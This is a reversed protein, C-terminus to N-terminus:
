VSGAWCRDGYCEGRREKRSDSQDPADSDRQGRAASSGAPAHRAQALRDARAPRVIRDRSRRRDRTHVHRDVRGKLTRVDLAAPTSARASAADTTFTWSTPNAVPHGNQDLPFGLVVVMLVAAVPGVGAQVWPANRSRSRRPGWAGSMRAGPEHDIALASGLAGGELTAIMVPGRQIGARAAHSRAPRHRARADRDTQALRLVRRPPTRSRWSDRITREHREIRHRRLDFYRETNNVSTRMHSRRAKPSADSRWFTRDRAVWSSRNGSACGYPMSLPSRSAAFIRASRACKAPRESFRVTATVDARGHLFITGDCSRVIFGKDACRLAAVDTREAGHEGPM